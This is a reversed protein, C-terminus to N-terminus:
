TRPKLFLTHIFFIYRTKKIRQRTHSSQLGFIDFRPLPFTDMISQNLLTDFNKDNDDEYDIIKNCYEFDMKSIHTVLHRPNAYIKRICYPSLGYNYSDPNECLIFDDGIQSCMKMMLLNQKFTKFTCEDCQYINTNYDDDSNISNNDNIINISQFSHSMTIDHKTERYGKKFMFNKFIDFPRLNITYDNNLKKRIYEEWQSHPTDVYQIYRQSFAYRLSLELEYATNSNSYLSVNLNVRKYRMYDRDKNTTCTRCLSFMSDEPLNDVDSLCLYHPFWEHTPNDEHDLVITAVNCFCLKQKQFIVM